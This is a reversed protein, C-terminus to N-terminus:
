WVFPSLGTSGARERLRCADHSIGGAVSLLHPRIFPSRQKHPATCGARDATRAGGVGMGISILQSLAPRGSGYGTCPPSAALILTDERPQCPATDQTHNYHPQPRCWPPWGTPPGSGAQGARGHQMTASSRAMVADSWQCAKDRGGEVRGGAETPARSPRRHATPLTPGGAAHDACHGARGSRATAGETRSCPHPDPPPM